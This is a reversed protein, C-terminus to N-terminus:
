PLATSTRPTSASPAMAPSDAPPPPTAEGSDAQLVLVVAIVAATVATLTALWWMRIARAHAAM